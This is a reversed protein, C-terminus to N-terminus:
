KGIVMFRTMGNDLLKSGKFYIEKIDAQEALENENKVCNIHDDYEDNDTSQLVYIPNINNNLYKFRKMPYMHECSTNIVIDFNYKSSKPCIKELMINKEITFYRNTKIYRNNFKYSIDKPDRDIEYNVVKGCRNDDLLLPTIIHAFWGGLLAVEDKKVNLKSLEESLWLKSQSQSITSAHKIRQMMWPKERSIFDFARAWDNISSAKMPICDVM